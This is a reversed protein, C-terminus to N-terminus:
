ECIHFNGWDIELSLQNKLWKEIEHINGSTVAENHEEFSKMIVEDFFAGCNFM